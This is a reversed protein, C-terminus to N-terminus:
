NKKIEDVAADNVSSESKQTAAVLKKRLEYNEDRYQCLLQFYHNQDEACKLNEGLEYMIDKLREAQEKLTEIEKAALDYGAQYTIEHLDLRNVGHKRNGSLKDIFNDFQEKLKENM